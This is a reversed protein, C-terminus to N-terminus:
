GLARAAALTEDVHGPVKVGRWEYRLVGDADLLFTSREIGRVPRGYMTKNKMVAFLKCLREEPDSILEFPLNLKKKFGLHSQMSDRSVGVIRTRHEAFRGHAQAFDMSEATCGSTNDKPYFYILLPAGRAESLRFDGGTSPAAFDPVAEGLKVKM